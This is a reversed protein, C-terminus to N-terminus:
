EYLVVAQEPCTRAAERALEEQGPPVDESIATAHGDEESLAFLGPATM